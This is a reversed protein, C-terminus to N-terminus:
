INNAPNKEKNQPKIMNKILDYFVAIITGTLVYRMIYQIFHINNTKFNEPTVFYKELGIDFHIKSLYIDTVFANYEKEYIANTAEIYLLQVDEINEYYYKGFLVTILYIFFISVILFIFVYSLKKISHKLSICIAVYSFLLLFLCWFPYIDFYDFLSYCDYLIVCSCWVCSFRGNYKFALLILSVNCYTIGIILIIM